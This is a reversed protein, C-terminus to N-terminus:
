YLHPTSSTNINRAAVSLLLKSRFPHPLSSWSPTGVPSENSVKNPPPELSLFYPSVFLLLWAERWPGLHILLTVWSLEQAKRLFSNECQGRRDSEITLVLSKGPRAQHVKWNWSTTTPPLPLSWMNLTICIKEKLKERCVILQIM